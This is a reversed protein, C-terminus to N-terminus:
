SGHKADADLDVSLAHRLTTQEREEPLQMYDGYRLALYKEVEQPVPLMAGSFKVYKPSGIYARPFVANKLTVRGFFHGVRPTERDNFRRIFGILAAKVPGLVLSRSIVMAIKKAISGTKYGREGLAGAILIRSFAFQVWYLFRNKPVNNLCFIDLFVGKHMQRDRTDEELYSTGNMRLKSYYLPWEATAELQLYFREVDLDKRCVEIFRTYNEYTMFVDFDDDWPIFGQHRVAGLASGNCLYYTIGHKRCLGDLYIAMELLKSQLGSIDVAM